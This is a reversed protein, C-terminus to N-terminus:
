CSDSASSLSRCSNRCYRAPRASCADSAGDRALLYERLACIERLTEPHYFAELEKPYSVGFSLDLTALRHAVEDATPPSLRPQALMASLPTPKM